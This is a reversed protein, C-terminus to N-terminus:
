FVSHAPLHSKRRKVLKGTCRFFLVDLKRKEMPEELGNLVSAEEETGYDNKV